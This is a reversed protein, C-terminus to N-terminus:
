LYQYRLFVEFWTMIEKLYLTGAGSIIGGFRYGLQTMAVGAGQSKQDLIEIRFADIVIDQSASLFSILLAVIAIIMLDNNPDLNGLCLLSPILFIPNITAM